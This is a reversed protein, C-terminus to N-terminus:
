GGGARVPRPNRLVALDASRWVVPYGALADGLWPLRPRADGDNGSTPTIVLNASKIGALVRAFEYGVQDGPLLYVGVPAALGPFILPAAGTDSIVMTRHGHALAEITRWADREAASAWLGATEATPTTTRWERTAAIAVGIDAVMAILALTVVPAFCYESLVATAAVGMVILFAYNMWSSPGGFMVFAAILQAAACFAVIAAVRRREGGNAGGRDRILRIVSIAGAIELWIGGLFWFPVVVGFYAILPVGPFDYFRRGGQNFLGFGLAHYARIGAGPLITALLAPVGYVVALIAALLAGTLAAPLLEQLAARYDFHRAGSGDRRMSGCMITILIFFGFVYGMAPKAFCAATALTLAQARRGNVIGALAHSLLAAELGHALSYYSSPIAIPAGIALMAVGIPNLRMAGVLRAMALAVALGCLIVAVEFAIPTLGFAGFWLRGALIPLLGYYYRFDVDPRMGHAALYQVTLWGGRDGFAFDGFSLDHPLRLAATGLVIAALLAWTRGVSPPHDPRRRWGPFM